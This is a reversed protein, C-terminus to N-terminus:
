QSEKVSFKGAIWSRHSDPACLYITGPVTKDAEKNGFQLKLSYNSVFPETTSRKSGEPAGILRIHPTRSARVGRGIEYTKNELSEGPKLILWLSVELGTGRPAGQRFVLTDRNELAVKDPKFERGRVMGLVPADPPTMDNLNATWKAGFKALSEKNTADQKQAKEKLNATVVDAPVLVLSNLFKNATESDLQAADKATVALSYVRPKAAFIVLRRQNQEGTMRYDRAKIDGLSIAKGAGLEYGKAKEESLFVDLVQATTMGRLASGTLTCGQVELSTGDKLKCTKAQMVIRLGNSSFSSDRSSISAEKPVAFYYRSDKSEVAKWGEPPRPPEWKKSDQGIVLGALVLTIVLAACRQM